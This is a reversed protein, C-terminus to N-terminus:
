SLWGPAGLAKGWFFNLCHKWITQLCQGSFFRGPFDFGVHLNTTWQYIRRSPREGDLSAKKLLRIKKIKTIFKKCSKWVRECNPPLIVPLQTKQRGHLEKEGCKLIMTVIDLKLFWLSAWGYKCFSHLFMGGESLGSPPDFPTIATSPNQLVAFCLVCIPCVHVCVCVRACIHPYACTHLSHSFYM